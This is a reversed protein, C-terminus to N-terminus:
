KPTEPEVACGAGLPRRKLCHLCEEEMFCGFGYATEHQGYPVVSWDHECPPGAILRERMAENERTLRGIEAFNGERLKMEADAVSTLREIEDAAERAWDTHWAHDYATDLWRLRELLSMDKTPLGKLKPVPAARAFECCKCDMIQCAATGDDAEMEYYPNYHEHRKHSCWCQDDPSIIKTLHDTM